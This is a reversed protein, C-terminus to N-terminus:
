SLKELETLTIRQDIVDFLHHDPVNFGLRRAIADRM